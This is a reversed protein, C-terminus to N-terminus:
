LRGLPCSKAPKGRQDARKPQLECGFECGPVGPRESVELSLMQPGFVLRHRRAAPDGDDPSGHVLSFQGGDPLADVLRQLGVGIVGADRHNPAQGQGLHKRDVADRGARSGPRVQFQFLLGLRPDGEEFPGIGHDGHFVSAELAVAFTTRSSRDAFPM